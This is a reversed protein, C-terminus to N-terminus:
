KNKYKSLVEDFKKGSQSNPNGMNDIAWNAMENAILEVVEESYKNKEQAQQWKAGMYFAVVESLIKSFKDAAEELTEKAM